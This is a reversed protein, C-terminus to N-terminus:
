NRLKLKLKVVKIRKEVIDNKQQYQFVKLYTSLATEYDKIREYTFAMNTLALIYDPLIDIAIRYYYIAFEFEELQYYTYGLTNYLSGLGIKDNTDWCKLSARFLNIAKDYIKKRLYLQGLKYLEEYPSNIQNIKSELNIIRKEVKQTTQIQGIVYTSILILSFFLLSSYIIPFTTTM